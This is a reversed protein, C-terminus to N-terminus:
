CKQARRKSELERKRERLREGQRANYGARMTSVIKHISRELSDCLDARPRVAAQTPPRAASAGRQAPPRPPPVVTDVVSVGALDPEYVESSAGCPRDSFVAGQSSECRYIPRTSPENATVANSMGLSMVVAAIWPKM